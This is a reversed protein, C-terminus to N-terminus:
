SQEQTNAHRQILDESCTRCNARTPRHCEKVGKLDDGLRKWCIWTRIGRKEAEVRNRIAIYRSIKELLNEKRSIKEESLPEKFYTELMEKFRVILFGLKKYSPKFTGFSSLLINPMKPSTVLKRIDYFLEDIIEVLISEDIEHEKAVLAIEDKLKRLYNINRKRM